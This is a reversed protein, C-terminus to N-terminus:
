ADDIRLRKVTRSLRNRVRLLLSLAVSALGAVLGWWLGQPGHDLYFALFMGLPIGFLWFGVLHILMPVRTDGVGRLVGTAVIQTGDFVQFVGAIPILVAAVAIVETDDTFARALDSPLVLFLVASFLMVGPGFLLTVKAARRMAAPDGRGVEHGVRVSGSMSIGLPVMFSLAALTLAVQHGAMAEEEFRGMMFAVMSFAGIELAFQAGIPAGLRVLRFLPVLALVERRLPHLYPKLVPWALVILAVAQCWRAFVTAWACGIAGLAPFGLHGFILLWDLFVNLLNACVIALVLPRMVHIAQMGMRLGVFVLFAPVGAISILGYETAIPVVSAPQGTGELVPGIATIGLGIPIALVFALVLGRQFARAIATKDQAGFAQSVVPDLAQLTGLGFAILGFVWTNGIAVAAMHHASVRGMMLTDVVGMLMLGVQITVVPLALRLQKAVEERWSM